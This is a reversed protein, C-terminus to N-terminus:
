PAPLASFFVKTGLFVPTLTLSANMKIEDFTLNATGLGFTRGSFPRGGKEWISPWMRHSGLAFAWNGLRTPRMMLLYAIPDGLIQFKLIFASM